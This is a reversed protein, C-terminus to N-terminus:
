LTDQQDTRRVRHIAEVGVGMPNMCVAEDSILSGFFCAPTASSRSGNTAQRTGAAAERDGGISATRQAVRSLWTERHYTLGTKAYLAALTRMVFRPKIPRWVAMTTDNRQLDPNWPRVVHLCCRATACRMHVIACVRMSRFRTPLSIVRAIDTPREVTIERSPLRCRRMQGHQRRSSMRPASELADHSHHHLWENIDEIVTFGLGTSEAEANCPCSSKASTRPLCPTGHHDHGHRAPRDIVKDEQRDAVLLHTTHM